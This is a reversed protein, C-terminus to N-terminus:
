SINSYKLWMASVIKYILRQKDIDFDSSNQLIPVTSNNKALKHHMVWSFFTQCWLAFYNCSPRRLLLGFMNWMRLEWKGRMIEEDFIGFTNGLEAVREEITEQKLLSQLTQFSCIYPYNDINCCRHNSPFNRNYDSHQINLWNINDRRSLMRQSSWYIGHLEVFDM